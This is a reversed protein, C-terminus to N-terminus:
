PSRSGTGRGGEVGRQMAFRGDAGTVARQELSNDTRVLISAGSVVAGTEDTVVGTVPSQALAVAPLLCFLVTLLKRM